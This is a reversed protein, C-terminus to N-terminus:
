SILFYWFLNWWELYITMSKIIIYFLRICLFEFDNENNQYFKILNDLWGSSDKSLKVYIQTGQKFWSEIRWKIYM